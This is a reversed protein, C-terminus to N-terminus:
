WDSSYHNKARCRWVAFAFLAAILVIVQRIPARLDPNSWEDMGALCFACWFLVSASTPHRTWMLVAAAALYSTPPGDLQTWLWAFCGCASVFALLAKLSFQNARLSSEM